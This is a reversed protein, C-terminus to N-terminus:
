LLAIRKQILAKADFAQEIKARASKCRATVAQPDALMGAIATSAADVDDADIVLGTEASLIEAISGTASAVIPLGCAMAELVVNPLGEMNGDALERSLVLLLDAHAMYVAVAQPTRVGAWVFHTELDPPVLASMGDRAPGDGVITLQAELGCRNLEVTIKIARDLGKKEVLRGIFLLQLPSNAEFAADRPLWRELDVGHHLLHTKSAFKACRQLFMDRVRRNCVFVATADGYIYDDDFKPMLADAAHISVTYPLEHSKAANAILLGPLDAFAAYLHDPRLEDIITSLREVAAAHRHLSVERRLLGPMPVPIKWGAVTKEGISKETLYLPEPVGAPVEGLGRRVAVLQLAVDAERLLRLEQAIFTESWNPYTGTLYLLL